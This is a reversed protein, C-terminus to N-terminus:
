LPTLCLAIKAERYSEDQESKLSPGRGAEGPLPLLFVAERYTEDREVEYKGNGEEAKAKGKDVINVKNVRDVERKRTL